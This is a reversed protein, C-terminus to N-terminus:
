YSIKEESNLLPVDNCFEVLQKKIRDRKDKKQNDILVVSISVILSFSNLVDTISQVLLHNYEDNLLGSVYLPLFAVIILLVGPRYSFNSNGSLMKIYRYLFLFLPYLMYVGISFRVISSGLLEQPSYVYFFIFLSFVGVFYAVCIITFIKEFLNGKIESKSREWDLKLLVSLRFVLESKLINKDGDTKSNEMKEITEWIYGDYDIWKPQNAITGYGLPNINVKLENLFNIQSDSSQESIKGSLQRIKKRWNAREKTINELNSKKKDSFYNVVSNIIAVLLSSGLVAPILIAFLNSSEM